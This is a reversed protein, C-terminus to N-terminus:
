VAASSSDSRWAAWWPARWSSGCRRPSCLQYLVYLPVPLTGGLMMVLLIGATLAYGRRPASVGIGSAAPAAM